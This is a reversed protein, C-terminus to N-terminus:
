NFKSSPSFISIVKASSKVVSVHLYITFLVVMLVMVSVLPLNAENCVLCARANVDSPSIPVFGLSANKCEACLLGTRDAVCLEDDIDGVAGGTCVVPSACRFSDFTVVGSSNDRRNAILQFGSDVVLKDGGACFTHSPCVHCDRNTAVVDSVDRNYTGEQCPVCM